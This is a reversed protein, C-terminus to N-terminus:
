ASKAKDLYNMTKDYDKQLIKEIDRIQSKSLAGVDGSFFQYIKQGRPRSKMKRTIESLKLIM